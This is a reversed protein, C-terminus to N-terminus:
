RRLPSGFSLFSFRFVFVLFYVLIVLHSTAYAHLQSRWNGTATALSLSSSLSGFYILNMRFTRYEEGGREIEREREKETCPLPKTSIRIENVNKERRPTHTHENTQALRSRLGKRMKQRRNIQSKREGKKRGDTGM